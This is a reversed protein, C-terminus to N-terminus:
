SAKEWLGKVESKHTGEKRGKTAAKRLRNGQVSMGKVQRNKDEKDPFDYTRIGTVMLKAM